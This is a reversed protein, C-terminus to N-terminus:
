HILLIFVRANMKTAFLQIVYLNKKKATKNEEEKSGHVSSNQRFLIRNQHNQERNSISYSRHIAFSFVIAFWQQTVGNKWTLGNTERYSLIM